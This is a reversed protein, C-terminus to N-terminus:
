ANKTTAVRRGLMYKELSDLPIRYNGDSGPSYAELRGDKIMREITRPSYELAEAVKGVSAFKRLKGKSDVVVGM